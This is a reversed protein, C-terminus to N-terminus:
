VMIHLPSSCQHVKTDTAPLPTDQFWHWTPVSSHSQIWKTRNRQLGRVRVTSIEWIPCIYEPPTCSVGSPHQLFVHSSRDIPNTYIWLFLLLEAKNINLICISVLMEGPNMHWSTVNLTCPRFIWPTLPSNWLTCSKGAISKWLWQSKM